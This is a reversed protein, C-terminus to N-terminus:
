DHVIGFFIQLKTSQMKCKRFITRKSSCKLVHTWKRVSRILKFYWDPRNVINATFNSSYLKTQALRRNAVYFQVPITTIINSKLLSEFTTMQATTMKPSDDLLITMQHYQYCIWCKSIVPLWSTQALWLWSSGCGAWASHCCEVVEM